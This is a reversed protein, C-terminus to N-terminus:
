PALRQITWADQDGLRRYSFRDHLRGLGAQWFEYQEPALVYGGWNEPLPVQGAGFRVAVERFRQELETRDRLPESQSSAWAGLQSVVPRTQFYAESEERSLQSVAGFVRVQRSLIAWFFLLTARPNEALERGKQSAYNTYFIFGRSDLGKLLVIRASPTGDAAATALTMANPEPVAARVADQFWRVFQLRPDPVLDQEDLPQVGLGLTSGFEWNTIEM